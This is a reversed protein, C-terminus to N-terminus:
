EAAPAAKRWPKGVIHKGGNNAIWTLRKPASQRRRKAKKAWEPDARLDSVTKTLMAMLKSAADRQGKPTKKLAEQTSGWVYIDLPNCDAGKPMWPLLTVNEKKLYATTKLATHPSALDHMRAWEQEGEAPGCVAARIKPFVDTSLISDVYYESDIAQKPPVIHPALVVGGGPSSVTMHLMIGAGRQAQPAVIADRLEPDSKKAGADAYVRENQPNPNYTEFGREAGALGRPRAPHATPCFIAM